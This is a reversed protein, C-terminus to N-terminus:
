LYLCYVQNNNNSVFISYLFVWQYIFDTKNNDDGEGWCMNMWSKISKSRGPPSRSHTRWNRKTRERQFKGKLLKVERDSEWPSQESCLTDTHCLPFVCTRQVHASRLVLRSGSPGHAHKAEKLMLTRLASYCKGELTSRPHFLARVCHRACLLWYKKNRPARNPHLQLVHSRTRQGPILGLDGANLTCFRLWQGVLSTRATLLRLQWYCAWEHDYPNVDAQGCFGRPWEEM